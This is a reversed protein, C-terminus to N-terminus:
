PSTSVTVAVIQDAPHRAELARVYCDCDPNGCVTLFVYGRIHLANLAAANRSHTVTRVNLVGDIVAAYGEATTALGNALSAPLTM